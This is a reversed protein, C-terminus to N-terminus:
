LESSSDFLIRDSHPNSQILTLLLKRNIPDESRLFSRRRPRELRYRRSPIQRSEMRTLLITTASEGEFRARRRRRGGRRSEGCGGRNRNKGAPNARRHSVNSEGSTFLNASSIRERPSPILRANLRSLSGHSLLSSSNTLGM